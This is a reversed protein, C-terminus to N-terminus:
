RRLLTLEPLLISLEYDKNEAADVAKYCVRKGNDSESTYTISSYPVYILEENGCPGSPNELM